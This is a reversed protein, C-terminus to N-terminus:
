IIKRYGDVYPKAAALMDRVTVSIKGWNKTLYNRFASTRNIPVPIKRVLNYCEVTGKDRRGPVWPKRLDYVTLHQDLKSARIRTLNYEVPETDESARDSEPTPIIPKRKETKSDPKGLMRDRYEAIEGDLGMLRLHTEVSTKTASYDMFMPAPFTKLDLNEVLRSKEDDQLRLSVIPLMIPHGINLVGLAYAEFNLLSKLIESCELFNKRPDAFLRRPFFSDQDTWCWALPIIRYKKLYEGLMKRRAGKTRRKSDEVWEQIDDTLYNGDQIFTKFREVPMGLKQAFIPGDEYVRQNRRAFEHRYYIAKFIDGFYKTAKAIDVKTRQRRITM